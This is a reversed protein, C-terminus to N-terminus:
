HEPTISAPERIPYNTVTMEGSFPEFSVLNFGSSRFHHLNFTKMILVDLYSSFQIDRMLDLLIVSCIRMSCTYMTVNYHSPGKLTREREREYWGNLDTYM